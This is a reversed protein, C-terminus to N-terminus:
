PLKELALTTVMEIHREGSAGAWEVRVKVPLVVYGAALEDDKDADGNLDRPMGLAADADAESLLLGDGPFLIEGPLGDPDGAVAELGVVDFSSGPCSGALDDDETTNFRAFAQAFPVSRVQDVASLAASVAMETERNARSLGQAGLHCLIMGGSGVTFVTLAIALEVLSHGQARRARRQAAERSKGMTGEARELSGAGPM